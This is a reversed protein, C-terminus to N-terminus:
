WKKSDDDKKGLEGAIITAINILAVIIKKLIEMRKRGDHVFDNAENSEDTEM